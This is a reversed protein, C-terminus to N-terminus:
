NPSTSLVKSEYPTNRRVLQTRGLDEAEFEAVKQSHALAADHGSIKWQIWYWLRATNAFTSYTFWGAGALADIINWTSPGLAASSAIYGSSASGKQSRNSLTFRRRIYIPPMVALCLAFCVQLVIWTQDECGVKSIKETL